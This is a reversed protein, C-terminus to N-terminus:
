PPRATRAVSPKSCVHCSASNTTPVDHQALCSEANLLLAHRMSAALYCFANASLHVMMKCLWFILHDPRGKTNHLAPAAAVQVLMTPTCPHWQPYPQRTCPTQPARSQRVGVHHQPSSPQQQSQRATSLGPAISSEQQSLVGALPLNGEAGEYARFIGRRLVRCSHVEGATRQAYHPLQPTSIYAAEFKSTCLDHPSKDLIDKPVCCHCRKYDLGHQQLIRNHVFNSHPTARHM